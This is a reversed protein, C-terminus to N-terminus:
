EAAAIYARKFDLSGSPNIGVGVVQPKVLTKQSPTYLPIVAMDEILMADQQRLLDIRKDIDAEMEAADVLKDYEPNNYHSDNNSNDSRYTELNTSPDNYGNSNMYRAVDFAGEKRHDIFAANDEIKIECNIGLNAKWMATIAQAVEEHEAGSSTGYTITPFGEGNPYGAEALLAKAEEVNEEFLRGAASWAEGTSPDVLSSPVISYAPQEAGKFVADCIAQRDMALALAKRVRADSLVEDQCDVVLWMSSLRSIIYSEDMHLLCSEATPRTAVQIEGTEYAMLEVSPDTIFRCEIEELTIKDADYYYPNKEYVIKEGRVHEIMRFPGNGICSEPNQAWDDGYTEVMDQRVPMYTPAALYEEFILQPAELYIIITREDPCEIGVEEATCEGSNYAQANKICYLRDVYKAATVPDLERLWSYQFDYATVPEGDSWFIDDRLKVTYVLGDESVDISEAQGLTLEGETWCTLGEFMHSTLEIISGNRIPDYSANEINSYVLRQTEAKPAGEMTTSTVIRGVSSIQLASGEAEAPAEQADQGAPAAAQAEEAATSGADTNATTGSSCASLLMCLALLLFLATKICNAKKSTM